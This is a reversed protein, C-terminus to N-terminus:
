FLPVNKKLKCKDFRNTTIDVRVPALSEIKIEKVQVLNVNKSSVEQNIPDNQAISDVKFAKMYDAVLKESSKNKIHCEKNRVQDSTKHIKSGSFFIM